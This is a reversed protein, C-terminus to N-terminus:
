RGPIRACTNYAQVSIEGAASNQYDCIGQRAGVLRAGYSNAYCNTSVFSYGAPCAPSFATGAAGAALVLPESLVSFTFQVPTAVPAMFYGTVFAAYHTNATSFVKLEQTCGQCTPVIMDNTATTNVTNLPVPSGQTSTGDFPFVRIFGTTTNNLGTVSLALAAPNAPIGCNTNSGGQSTFNGGVNSADLNRTAGAGLRDATVRTDVIRCPTIPTFVLDAALDGLAKTVPSGSTGIKANSRAMRDIIQDDNPRQGLLANRMGEYTVARAAKQLNDLDASALSPWLSAAWARRNQGNVKEVYGGWKLLIRGATVKRDAETLRKQAATQPSQMPNAPGAAIGLLPAGLLSAMLILRTKM